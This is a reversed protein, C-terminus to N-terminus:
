SSIVLMGSILDLSCFIQYPKVHFRSHTGILIIPSFFNEKSWCQGANTEEQIVWCGNLTSCQRRHRRRRQASQGPMMIAQNYECTVTPSIFDSPGHPNEAVRPGKPIYPLLSRRSDARRLEDGTRRVASLFSERLHFHQHYLPLM